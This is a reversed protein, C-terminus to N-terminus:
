WFEKIQRKNKINREQLVKPVRYFWNKVDKGNEKEEQYFLDLSYLESELDINQYLKKWKNYDKENIKIVSGEFRYRKPLGSTDWPCGSTKEYDEMTPKWDLPVIGKYCMQYKTRDVWGKEWRDLDTWKPNDRDDGDEDEQEPLINNDEKKNSIEKNSILPSSEIKTEDQYDVQNEVQNDDQNSKRGSNERVGGWNISTETTKLSPKVGLFAISVLDNKTKIEKGEWAYIFCKELFDLRNKRSKLALFTNYVNEQIKVYKAM